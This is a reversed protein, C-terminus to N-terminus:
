VFPLASALSLALLSPLARAVLPDPMKVHLVVLLASVIAAATATSLTALRAFLAPPRPISPRLPILAGGRGVGLLGLSGALIAAPHGLVATALRVLAIQLVTAACALVAMGGFLGKRQTMGAARRGHDRSTLAHFAAPRPALPPAPALPRGPREPPARPRVRGGAPPAPGLGLRQRRRRGDPPHPHRRRFRRPPRSRRAPHPRARAGACLLRPRGAARRPGRDARRPPGGPRRLHVVRRHARG